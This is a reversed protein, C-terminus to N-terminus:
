LREHHKPATTKTLLGIEREFDGADEFGKYVSAFRVYAVHDLDRLRDLVAMGVQESTVESGLARLHEEVEGALVEIADPEVPRNKCAARIGAIVKEPRFPEREGSRKAVFLVVGALREITTFRFGCERCGRRRRIAAGHEVARSDVM